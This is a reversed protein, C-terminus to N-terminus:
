RLQTLNYKRFDEEPVRELLVLQFFGTIVTCNEVSRLRHLNNRIDINHCLQEDVDFYEEVANQQEAVALGGADYRSRKPIVLSMILFILGYVYVNLSAM